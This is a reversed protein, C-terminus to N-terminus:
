VRKELLVAAWTENMQKIGREEYGAAQYYRRLAESQALCDLRVKTKGRQRALIEVWQLLWHGLGTKRLDPRVVLTHLYLCEGEDEGWLEPDAEQTTLSGIVEGDRICVYLEGREVRDALTEVPMYGRDWQYIGKAILWGSATDMLTKTAPVDAAIALRIHADGIV